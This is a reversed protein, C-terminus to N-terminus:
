LYIPIIVPFSRNFVQKQPESVPYLPIDIVSFPMVSVTKATASM